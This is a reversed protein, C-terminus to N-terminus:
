TPHLQVDHRKRAHLLAVNGSPSGGPSQTDNNSRLLRTLRAKAQLERPRSGGVGPLLLRRNSRSKRGVGALVSLMDAGLHM